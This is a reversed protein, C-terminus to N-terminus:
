NRHLEQDRWSQLDPAEMLKLRHLPVHPLHYYATLANRMSFLLRCMDSLSHVKVAIDITQLIQCMGASVLNQGTSQLHEHTRDHASIM